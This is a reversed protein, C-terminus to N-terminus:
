NGLLSMVQNAIELEENTPVVMISVASEDAQLERSGGSAKGANKTRDLKVGLIGLGECVKERILPSNEGVGATFILADLRTLIAAYAGIYKRIRYVYMDIALAAAPDGNEYRAIISRLDNEGTLGKLGSEKNLINDIEDPELNLTKSLFLILSPDLDGSRTGMILGGLPTLGMSTDISKGGSIAAMSCGNGLHITIANFAQLDINLLSAAERSVYQHSTGHFGYARLGNEEYFSRSIAYRFARPPMSQHFATDFVAVQKATPFVKRAVEIGRLNAPNHLPALFSLQQLEFFMKDDVLAPRGFKEGGHVVRHGVAAIEDGNQIAGTQPDLLLGAIKKLGSQHDPIEEQSRVEEVQQDTKFVEHRVSGMGEGIKEVVGASLVVKSPMSFLQYKISSSGANLVLIKM